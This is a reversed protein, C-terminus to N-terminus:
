FFSIRVVFPSGNIPTGNLRIAVPVDGLSPPPFSTTYVGDGNSQATLVTPIGSVQVEVVDSVGARVNGEADRVTVRVPIQGSNGFIRWTAPVEATTTGPSATGVAVSSSIPAGPVAIGGVRVTIQDVGAARPTYSAAYAGGGQDQAEGATISNAGTIQVSIRGAQGSAPNGFQDELRIAIATPSGATGNGATASSSAADAPGATVTVTAIAEIRLGDIEAAVAHTGAATASFRGAAAGSGDTAAAPQALTIGEGSTQLTVTRGGVPNGFEDRATVTITSTSSGASAAITAPAAQVTSGSASAPGATGTATFVIPGGQLELGDVQARLANPGAATGLRWSGVRAIGQGDTGVTSGSVSGGGGTVAFTVPVGPVPNGDLDRLLVAPAVPVATNVTASQGDGGAGEISTAAGVGIAIPASAASAFGRAAFFLTRTGPTGRISLDAFSALGSADSEVATTGELSGGGTAIQATVRVGASALPQGTQDLLQIVPQQAFVAGLAASSSPQTVLSLTAAVAMTTFFVSREPLAEVSAVTSYTGPEEGLIRRTGAQGDAGTTATVPDVSGGDEASWTIEVNPVPNRFGDEVRVVLSDALPQGITGNQGDGRVLRIVSPTGENPLTLDDGGCALAAVPM